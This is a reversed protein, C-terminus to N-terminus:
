LYLGGNVSIVQGTIYSSCPSCLFSVAEAVESALGLRGLPIHSLIRELPLSLIMETDIFGPAVSNVLIKRPAVERALAKVAGILGAKSASYNVQGAQGALGSLSTIVVIRGNRARQMYPIIPRVLNFFGNLNVELVSQWDAFSMLGFMGDKTIGANCILVTPTVKSLFEELVRGSELTDAVNFPLLECIGGNEEINKKVKFAEDQSSRYNLWVSFGDRAL